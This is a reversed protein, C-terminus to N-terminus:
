LTKGDSMQVHLTQAFFLVLTDTFYNYILIMLLKVNLLLAM